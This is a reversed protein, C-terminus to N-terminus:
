RKLPRYLVTDGSTRTTRSWSPLSAPRHILGQCSCISHVGIAVGLEACTMTTAMPVPMTMTMAEAAMGSATRGADTHSAPIAVM